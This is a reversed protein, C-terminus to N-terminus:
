SVLEALEAEKAEKLRVAEEAAKTANELEAKLRTAAMRNYIEKPESEQLYSIVSRMFQALAIKQSKAAHHLWTMQDPGVMVVLQKMKTGNVQKQKKM